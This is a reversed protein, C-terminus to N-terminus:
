AAVEQERWGAPLAGDVGLVVRRGTPKAKHRCKSCRWDDVMHEIVLTTGDCGCAVEVAVQGERAEM